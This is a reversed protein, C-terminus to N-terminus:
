DLGIAMEHPAPNNGGFFLGLRLGWRGLVPRLVWQGGAAGVRATLWVDGAGRMEISVTAPEGIAVSLLPAIARVGSHYCYASLDVRGTDPNYAWGIRASTGHPGGGFSLGGLKNVDAQDIGPLVYRCSEAFVVTRRWAPPSGLWPLRDLLARWTFRERHRGAAIVHIM